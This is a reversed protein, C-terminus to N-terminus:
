VALDLPLDSIDRLRKGEIMTALLDEADDLELERVTNVLEPLAFHYTCDIDGTGLAISAIRSPLPEGTVVTVHPLNGKRNRVLNLGESRANQARDSRMTWKCSISAHLLPLENNRKRLNSLRAYEDDLLLTERNIEEDPEPERYIVIDPSIAYDSGLAAALEPNETALKDLDVLHAYQVYRAIALRNRGTIHVVKWTGPRLHQLNFFTNEVFGAVISEFQNGSTQGALRSGKKHSGIQELIGRAINVSARNNKDANSAVGNSDLKLISELLLAHFHARAQSFLPSKSM